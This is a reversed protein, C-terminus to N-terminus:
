IGYRRSTSQDAKSKRLLGKREKKGKLKRIAENQKTIETMRENQASALEAKLLSIEDLAKREKASIHSLQEQKRRDEEVTTQLKGQILNILETWLESYTELPEHETSHSSKLKQLGNPINMM